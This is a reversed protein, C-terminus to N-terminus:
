PGRRLIGAEPKTGGPQMSPGPSSSGLGPQASRPFIVVKGEVPLFHHPLKPSIAANSRAQEYLQLLASDTQADLTSSFVSACSRPDVGAAALLRLAEAQAQKHQMTILEEREQAALGIWGDFQGWADSITSPFSGYYSLFSNSEPRGKLEKLSAAVAPAYRELVQWHPSEALRSNIWNGLNRDPIGLIYDATGHAQGVTLMDAAVSELLSPSQPTQSVVQHIHEALRAHIRTFGDRRQKLQNLQVAAFEQAIWCIATPPLGPGADNQKRKGSPLVVPILKLGTANLVITREEIVASPRLADSEPDAQRQLAVVFPVFFGQRPRPPLEFGSLCVSSPTPAQQSPAAQTRSASDPPTPPCVEGHFSRVILTIPAQISASAMLRDLVQTAALLEPSPTTAVSPAAFATLSHVSVLILFGGSGLPRLWDTM